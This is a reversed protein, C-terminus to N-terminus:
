YIRDQVMGLAMFIERWCEQLDVAHVRESVFGQDKCINELLIMDLDLDLDIRTYGMAVPDEEWEQLCAQFKSLILDFAESPEQIFLWLSQFALFPM